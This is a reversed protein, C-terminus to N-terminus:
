MIILLMIRNNFYMINKYREIIKAENIQIYDVVEECFSEEFLNRITIVSNEKFELDAKGDLVEDKLYYKINKM